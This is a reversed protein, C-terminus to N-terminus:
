SDVRYNLDYEENLDSFPLVVPGRLSVPTEKYFRLAGEIRKQLFESFEGDVKNVYSEVSDKM